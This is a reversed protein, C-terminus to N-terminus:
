ELLLCFLVPWPPPSFAMPVEHGKRVMSLFDIRNWEKKSCEWVPGSKEM